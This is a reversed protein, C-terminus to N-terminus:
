QIRNNLIHAYALEAERLQRLRETVTLAEASSEDEVPPEAAALLASLADIAAKVLTKNKASLVKGEHTESPVDASDQAGFTEIIGQLIQEMDEKLPGGVGKIRCDEMPTDRGPALCITRLRAFDGPDRQRFRYSDGTEDVDTKYDHDSCWKRAAPLEWFKKPFILTQLTFAQFQENMRSHVATITAMADAPFTVASVEYLRVEKLHRWITGDDHKVNDAIIPDFGISLSDIVGDRILTLAKRGTDTDSLRARLRLGSATEEIQTPLGIPEAPDHQWLVKIKSARESLTKKFAGPEVVTPM